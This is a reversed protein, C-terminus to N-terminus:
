SASVESPWVTHTSSRTFGLEKWLDRVRLPKHVSALVQFGHSVFGTRPWSDVLHFIGNHSWIGQQLKEYARVRGAVPNKWISSKVAKGRWIIDRPLGVTVSILKM